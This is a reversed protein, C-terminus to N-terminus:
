NLELNEDYVSMRAFLVNSPRAADAQPRILERGASVRLIHGTGVASSGVILPFPLFM